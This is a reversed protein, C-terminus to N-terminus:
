HPCPIQASISINHAHRFEKHAGGKGSYTLPVHENVQSSPHNNQRPKVLGIIEIQFPHDIM